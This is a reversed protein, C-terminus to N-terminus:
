DLGPTPDRETADNVMQALTQLWARHQNALEPQFADLALTFDVPGYWRHDAAGQHGLLMEVLRPGDYVEGTIELEHQLLFLLMKYM